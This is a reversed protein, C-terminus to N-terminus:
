RHKDTDVVYKFHLRFAFQLSSHSLRKTKKQKTGSGFFRFVIRFSFVFWFEQIIYTILHLQRDQIILIHVIVAKFVLYEYDIHLTKTEM